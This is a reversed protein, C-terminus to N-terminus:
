LGKETSFNANLLMYPSLKVKWKVGGKISFFQGNKAFKLAKNTFITLDQNKGLMKVKRVTLLCVHAQLISHKRLWRSTYALLM